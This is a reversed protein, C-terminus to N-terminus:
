YWRVRAKQHQEDLLDSLIDYFYLLGKVRRSGPLQSYLQKLTEDDSLRQVDPVELLCIM